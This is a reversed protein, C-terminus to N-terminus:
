GIHDSLWLNYTSTSIIYLKRSTFYIVVLYYLHCRNSPYPAKMEVFVDNVAINIPSTHREIEIYHSVVRSVNSGLGSLLVIIDHITEEITSDGLM